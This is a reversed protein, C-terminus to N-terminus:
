RRLARSAGVIMIVANVAVLTGIGVLWPSPGDGGATTAVEAEVGASAGAEGSGSALVAILVLACISVVLSVIAVVRGRRIPFPVPEATQHM